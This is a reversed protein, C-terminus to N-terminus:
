QPLVKGKMENVTGGGWENRRVFIASGAKDSTKGPLVIFLVCDPTKEKGNQQGPKGYCIRDSREVVDMNRLICVCFGLLEVEVVSRIGKGLGYRMGEIDSCLPM